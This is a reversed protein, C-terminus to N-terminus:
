VILGQINTLPVFFSHSFAFSNLMPFISRFIFSKPSSVHGVTFTSQNMRISIHIFSIPQIIFSMTLTLVDMQVSCLVNSSPSFILLMTGSLFFPWISGFINSVIFSSQFTSIPFKHPSVARLEFSVEHIIFYSANANVSPLISSHVFTLPNLIFHM